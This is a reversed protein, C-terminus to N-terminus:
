REGTECRRPPLVKLEVTFFHGRTRPSENIFFRPTSRRSAVVGTGVAFQEHDFIRDGAPAMPINQAVPIDVQALKDDDSSEGLLVFISCTDLGKLRM